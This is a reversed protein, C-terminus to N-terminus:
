SKLVMFAPPVPDALVIDENGKYFKVGSLWADHARVMLLPPDDDRRSGAIIATEKTSSLHVHQRNMPKLGEQLIRGLAKHSTAHYLFEPPEILPRVIETKVTHGYYARIRGNELAFRKKGPMAMVDDMDKRTYKSGKVRNIADILVDVDVSGDSSLELGFSEPDHRLAYSVRKSLRVLGNQDLM